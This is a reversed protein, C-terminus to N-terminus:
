SQLQEYFLLETPIKMPTLLSPWTEGQPTVPHQTPQASPFPSLHTRHTTAPPQRSRHQSRPSRPLDPSVPRFACGRETRFLQKFPFTSSSSPKRALGAEAVSSCCPQHSPCCPEQGTISLTQSREGDRPSYLPFIPVPTSDPPNEGKRPREWKGCPKTSDWLKEESETEERCMWPNIRLWELTMSKMKIRKTQPPTGLAGGCVTSMWGRQGRSQKRCHWLKGSLLSWQAMARADWRAAAPVLPSGAAAALLSILSSCVGIEDKISSQKYATPGNRSAAAALPCVRPISFIIPKLLLGLVSKKLKM